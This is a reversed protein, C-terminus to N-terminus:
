FFSDSSILMAYFHNKQKTNLVLWNLFSKLLIAGKKSSEELQSLLNVKDVVLIPPSAYDGHWINWKSLIRTIKVLLESINSSTVESKDFIKFNLKFFPLKTKLDEPMINKLIRIREKFFSNFQMSISNYLNKPFDFQELYCNLFLPKFNGKNM